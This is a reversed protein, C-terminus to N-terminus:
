EVLVMSEEESTEVRGKESDLGSVGLNGRYGLCPSPSPSVSLSIRNDGGM